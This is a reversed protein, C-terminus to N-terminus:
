ELYALKKDAPSSVKMNNSNVPNIQNIYEQPFIWTEKLERIVVSFNYKIM